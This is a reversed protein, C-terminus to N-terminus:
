NPLYCLLIVVILFSFLDNTILVNNRVTIISVKNISTIVEFLHDKNSWENIACIYSENKYYM